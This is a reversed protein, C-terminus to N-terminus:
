WSELSGIRSPGIADLGGFRRVQNMVETWFGESSYSEEPDTWFCGRTRGCLWETITVGEDPTYCIEIHYDTGMSGCDREGYFSFCKFNGNVTFNGCSLCKNM